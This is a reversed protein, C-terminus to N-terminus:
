VINFDILSSNDKRNVFYELFSSFHEIVIERQELVIREKDESTMNPVELQKLLAMQTQIERGNEVEIDYLTSLFPTDFAMTEPFLSIFRIETKFAHSLALYRFFWTDKDFMSMMYTPLNAKSWIKYNFENGKLYVQPNLSWQTAKMLLAYLESDKFYQQHMKRYPDWDMPQFEIKSLVLVNAAKIGSLFLTILTQDDETLVHNAFYQESQEKIKRYKEGTDQITIM